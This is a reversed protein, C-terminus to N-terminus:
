HIEVTDGDMLIHNAGVKEGLYKASPGWIRAYRFRKFLESHLKEAVEIVRTGRKVVVPVRSPERSSPEKSYVRIIGLMEFILRGIDRLGRGDECSVMLTRVRGGVCELLEKFREGAEPIDAKNAILLTPKYVVSAFLANEIDDLRVKGTIRVIASNVRYSNLLRRVDDVTCDTLIGGGVVRVTSGMGQRTIEVHGEPEEMLIDAKELESSLMKFQGVPDSSLDVMLILGDANRAMGLIQPGHMRGEAAGAELPPAEILQFQIDEYPLMAPVPKLTTYPIPSVQPNANTLSALLSSRGVNTPGLIVVQGAGEKPISFFDRRARKRKAKSREMERELAVIRRKVNAILKSTGKHKPVLSLFERMLRIKEPTSRCAVVQAWKAKAKAPLNTVM